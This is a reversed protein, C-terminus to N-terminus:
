GRRTSGRGAAEEEEEQWPRKAAGAGKAEGEEPGGQPGEEEMADQYYTRAKVVTEFLWTLEYQTFPALYNECFSIQGWVKHMPKPPIRWIGTEQAREPGFRHHFALWM